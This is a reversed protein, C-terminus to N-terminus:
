KQKNLAKQKRYEKEIKRIDKAKVPEIKELHPLRLREELYEIFLQAAEIFFSTFVDQAKIDVCSGNFVSLAAEKYGSKIDLNSLINMKEIAMYLYEKESVESEFLQFAEYDLKIGITGDKRLGIDYGPDIDSDDHGPGYDHYFTSRLITAGPKNIADVINRYLRYEVEKIKATQKGLFEYTGTPDKKHVDEEIELRREDSINLAKNLINIVDNYEIKAEVIKARYLQKQNINYIYMNGSETNMINIENNNGEEITYKSSKHIYKHKLETGDLYAVANEKHASLFHNDDIRRSISFLRMADLLNGNNSVGDGDEYDYATNDCIINLNEDLVLIPCEYVDESCAEDIKYFPSRYKYLEYYDRNVANLCYYQKGDINVTYLPHMMENGLMYMRALDKIKNHKKINLDLDYVTVEVKYEAKNEKLTMLEGPEIGEVADFEGIIEGTVSDSLITKNYEKDIYILKCLSKGREIYEIRSLGGVLIKLLTVDDRRFYRSKLEITLLEKEIYKLGDLLINKYKNNREEDEDLILMSNYAHADEIRYLEGVKSLKTKNGEDDMDMEFDVIEYLCEEYRYRYAYITEDKINLEFDLISENPNPGYPRLIDLIYTNTIYRNVIDLNEDLIIIDKGTLIAAKRGNDIISVLNRFEELDIYNYREDGEHYSFVTSKCENNVIIDLKYQYAVTKLTSLILLKDSRRVVIELCSMYVNSINNLIELAKAYRVDNSLEVM